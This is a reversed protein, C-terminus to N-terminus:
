EARLVEVPEVRSARWAPAWSAALAVVGLLVAAAIMTVPDVPEIEFLFRRLFRSLGLAVVAGLAVAALQLAMGERLVLNRLSREDAGFSLRVGFEKTRQSVSFALVGFVGVAAILSALSAFAGILIANLREPAVTESRIQRLTRIKEIPQDPSLGRVIAVIAPALLAPDSATRAVLGGAWPEQAFPQYLVHVPEENLGFDKTDAVVGVITRWGDGIGVFRIQEDSWRIRQGVPSRDPFYFRAMSANIVAVLAAEAHDTTRFGRGEVLAVGMTDFYDPSVARYDARPVSADPDLQFGDVGVEFLIPAGGLPIQSTMAAAVVGPLEQTRREITDYFGRIEAPTRRGRSLPIEMSLVNEVRYGTDVRQLNLLTRTLLGAGVLLVFSVALQAVALGRQLKGKRVSGTSRTGPAPLRPALASATAAVLAIVISFMLVAGDLEIEVARPTFRAAFSVLPNWAAATVILGVGVGALSLLLNEALLLRRLSSQGAGMATRVALERERRLTRSVTLNAVNACAILLVFGATALLVYLTPRARVTLEDKLAAVSVRPGEVDMYAEPYELALRGAIGHLETVTTEISSGEALRAFVQTMRHQRDDTMAASMHHPSTVTNVFVDTREPYHPVPELVGVITVTMGNMRFTKGVAEADGGFGRQWYDHTLVMVPHATHGDDESSFLRGRVPALGMVDFYNGSVIGARVRRPEDYGLMTFTLASFEAFGEATKAVARYDVIEPVSLTANPIAHVVATQCVHIIDEGGRHPLPRLLVGRVLSFIATNAGIGLGLTLVFVLSFGPTRLLARASYRLERVFELM